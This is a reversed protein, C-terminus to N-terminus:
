NQLKAIITKSVEYYGLENYHGFNRNPYLSLPDNHKLFLEEYVNIIPIELNEIIKIINLSKNSITLSKSKVESYSPLYVFVIKAHNDESFKQAKQMILKFNDLNSEPIRLYEIYSRVRQLKIFTIFLNKKKYEELKLFFYKNLEYDINDQLKKLNQTYYDNELYKILIPNKLEAELDKIDNEGCFLWIIKKVNTEPFYEKLRAYQVLPGSGGYGINITNKKTIKKINGAINDNENVCNGHAFSDGTILYDVNKNYVNNNPNNFGFKDSKYESYYNNENCHINITNAIGALTFKKSKDIQINMLPIPTTIKKHIGIKKKIIKFKNYNEIDQNKWNNNFIIIAEIVYFSLIISALTLTVNKNYKDSTFFLTCGFAFLFFNFYYYYKYTAFNSQPKFIFNIFLLYFFLLISFFIYIFAIKNKM